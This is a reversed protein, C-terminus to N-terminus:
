VTNLLLGVQNPSRWGHKKRIKNNYSDAIFDVDMDTLNDVDIFRFYPRLYKITNEVVPKDHPGESVTSQVGRHRRFFVLSDNEERQDYTLHHIDGLSVAKEVAFAKEMIDEVLMRSLIVRLSYCDVTVSVAYCSGYFMMTDTEWGTRQKSPYRDYQQKKGKKHKHRKARMTHLYIALGLDERGYIFDYIANPSFARLSPDELNHLEVSIAEPSWNERLRHTIHEQCLPHLEILFGRKRSTSRLAKAQRHAERALYVGDTLHNKVEYRIVSPWKRLIRAIASITKGDRLNSEILKRDRLTLRQRTPSPDATRHM